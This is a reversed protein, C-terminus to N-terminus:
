AGPPTGPKRGLAAELRERVRDVHSGAWYWKGCTPCYDLSPAARLVSGPVEGAAEFAHRRQLATNCEVCRSFPAGAPEHAATVIRLAAAEDGRPLPIVPVVAWRRPHRRSLTLVTRGERRAAELVEEFLASRLTVVDYGLFRLLRALGELSSDTVFRAPPVARGYGRRVPRPL